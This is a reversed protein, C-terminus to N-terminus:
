AKHERLVSSLDNHVGPTRQLRYAGQGSVIHGNFCLTSDGDVLLGYVVQQFSASITGPFATNNSEPKHSSTTELTRPVM